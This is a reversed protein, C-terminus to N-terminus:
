YVTCLIEGGTGADRAKRDTMIGKSTSVIVVGLGSSVSPMETVSRYVRRGPRSVRDLKEIVPSGEYYRLDISMVPKATSTDVRFDDIYGEEKLVKAIAEKVRSAPMEVSSKNAALGNRIRTLMDAIPDSMSM